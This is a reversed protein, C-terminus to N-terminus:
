PYIYKLVYMSLQHFVDAPVRAMETQARDLTKCCLRVMEQRTDEELMGTHVVQSYQPYSCPANAAPTRRIEFSPNLQAATFFPKGKFDPQPTLSDVAECRSSCLVQSDMGTEIGRRYLTIESDQVKICANEFADLIARANAQSGEIVSLPMFREPENAAISKIGRDLTAWHSFEKQCAILHVEFRYGAEVAQTPFDAFGLDDLACEMIINYQNNFAHKFVKDCLAWIFSETHEYVHLVGKEQMAAYHPHLKRFSPLYLRVFDDYRGSPLLHNDLLYTKGSGQAGAVILISPNPNSDLGSAYRKKDFWTPEHSAFVKDVDAPTYPYLTTM